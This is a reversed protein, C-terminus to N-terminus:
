GSVRIRRRNEGQRELLIEVDREAV